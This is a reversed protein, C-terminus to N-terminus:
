RATRHRRRRLRRAVIAPGWSPDFPSPDLMHGPLLLGAGLRRAVRLPSDGERGPGRIERALERLEGDLRVYAVRRSRGPPGAPERGLAADVARSPLDFGSRMSAGVTSGLRLNVDHVLLRGDREIFSLSCPGRYGVIDLLRRTDEVMRRPVAVTRMVSAPGDDRPHDRDVRFGLFEFARAYRVCHGVWRPGAVHEQVLAPVGAAALTGLAEEREEETRALRPRAWAGQSGSVRPKVLCPVPPWEARSRRAPDVEVTLPHDVHALQATM